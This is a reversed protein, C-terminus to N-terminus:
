RGLFVNQAALLTENFDHAYMKWATTLQRLNNLCQAASTNPKAKALAPLLTSALAALIALVVLLEILTFGGSSGGVALRKRAVGACHITSENMHIGSNM